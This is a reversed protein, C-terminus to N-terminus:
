EKTTKPWSKKLSVPDSIIMKKGFMVKWQKVVM